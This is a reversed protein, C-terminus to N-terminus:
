QLAHLYSSFTRIAPAANKIHAENVFITDPKRLRQQMTKPQLLGKERTKFSFQMSKKYKRLVQYEQFSKEKAFRFSVGEKRALFETIKM